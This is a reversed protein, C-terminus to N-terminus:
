KLFPSLFDRSNKRQKDVLGQVKEHDIPMSRIEEYSLDLKGNMLHSSLQVGDLLDVIRSGRNNTPAIYSVFNKAGTLISFVTGHFSDTIVLDVKAIYGIWERPGGDNVLQYNPSPKGYMSFVVLKKGSEKRLREAYDYLDQDYSLPFLLIYGEENPAVAEKMWEEQSLLFTPDSVVTSTLSLQNSLLQQGTKERIGIAQYASLWHKFDVVYKDEIQSLGFSAAYSIKKAGEPAFTLFYPELCYPQLPNWVQDSGTVYLDYHPPNAYLDDVSKYARSMRIGSNFAEFKTKAQENWVLSVKPPFLFRKVRHKLKKLAPILGRPEEKKTYPIYKKSPIYEKQYPRYLDIIEALCGDQQDIYKWLAYAQLSAGYNPSNHITIIGIKKTM